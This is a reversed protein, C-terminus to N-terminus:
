KPTKGPETAAPKAASATRPGFGFAEESRASVVMRVMNAPVMLELEITDGAPTRGDMIMKIFAGGTDIERCMVHEAGAEGQLYPKIAGGLAEVAQPFFFVAYGRTDNM